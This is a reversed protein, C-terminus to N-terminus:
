RAKYVYSLAESDIITETIGNCTIIYRYFYVKEGVLKNATAIEVRMECNEYKRIMAGGNWFEIYEYHLPMISKDVKTNWNCGTLLSALTIVLIFKKM